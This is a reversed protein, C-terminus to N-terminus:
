GGWRLPPAIASRPSQFAGGPQGVVGSLLGERRPLSAPRVLDAAMLRVLDSRSVIGVMRGDRVVPLRKIRYSTFLQAIESIKTTESVSVVPTAMIDRATREPRDVLALFQPSLPEGEALQSLWWERKAESKGGGDPAILDNETVMGVLAGDADVVPVGSIGNEVLIKAIQRLPMGVTVSLVKRTM